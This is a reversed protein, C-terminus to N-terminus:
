DWTGHLEALPTGAMFEEPDYTWFQSTDPYSDVVENVWTGDVEAVRRVYVTYIAQGYEDFRLPGRPADIEVGGIAEVLTERTVEGDISELAAELVQATAWGHEAYQSVSRGTEDEFATVFARNDDSDIAASYHLSTVVGDATAQQESLIQEDTTSGHGILPQSVGFDRYAQLLRIGDSGPAVAWVAAARDDIQQVFPAWDSTGLAAYIEQVVDCGADEYATAFGSAAEWGFAYDLGIIAMTEHGLETCAYEGLPMADQSSTYSLRFINDAADRQTLDDAGATTIVLPVGSDVIDAAVGYTVGSNVFGALLDVGDETLKTVAEQATAVDNATDETEVVVEHGALMGDHQDLYLRFGDNVDEGLAAFPGTLPNVLGVTIPQADADPDDPAASADTAPDAPEEDQVASGACAATVLALSVVLALGLRVPRHPRAIM